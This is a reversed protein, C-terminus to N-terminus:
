AIWGKAVAATQLTDMADRWLAAKRNESYIHQHPARRMAGFEVLVDLQERTMRGSLYLRTVLTEVDILECIRGIVDDTRRFHGRVAASSIFWFWLSEADQFKQLDNLQTQRM